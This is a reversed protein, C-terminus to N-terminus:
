ITDFDINSRLLEVYEDWRDTNNLIDVATSIFEILWQRYTFYNLECLESQNEGNAFITVYEPNDATGANWILRKVIELCVGMAGCQSAYTPLKGSKRAPANVAECHGYLISKFRDFKPAFHMRVYPTVDRIHQELLVNMQPIASGGWNVFKGTETQDNGSSTHLDNLVQPKLKEIWYSILRTEFQSNPAEPYGEEGERPIWNTVAFDRNLNIGNGNYRSSNQVGYPSALPLVYIDCFNRMMTIDRHVGTNECLDRLLKYNCYISAKEMGHLASVLLIKPLKGTFTYSSGNSGLPSLHYLYFGGNEIDTIYQPMVEDPNDALYQVSMDIEELGVNSYQEVLAHYRSYWETFTSNNVFDDTMEDEPFDDVWEVIGSWKPIVYFDKRLICNKKSKFVIKELNTIASSEASKYCYVTAFSRFEEESVGAKRYWQVWFYTATKMEAYKDETLTTSSPVNYRQVYQQNEDFFCIWANSSEPITGIEIRDLTAISIFGTHISATSSASGLLKGSSDYYGPAVEYAVESPTGDDDAKGKLDAIEAALGNIADGTAKADAAKGSQTLTTDLEVPNGNGKVIGTITLYSRFEEESVGTDRTWQVWVYTATEMEPYKSKTVIVNSSVGYRKVYQEDADFFCIQTVGTETPRQGIEIQEINDIKIKQTHISTTLDSGDGILTGSSNIYGASVEYQIEGTQDVNGGSDPVDVLEAAMEAIEQRDADTLVYNDGPEGKPGDFLGSEKAEALADDVAKPLQDVDLKGSIDQHETLYNGKPQYNDQVWQEKAYETMDVHSSDPLTIQVNGQNDPAVGNVTKVMNDVMGLREDIQAATYSLKYETAM